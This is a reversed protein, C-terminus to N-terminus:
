SKNKLICVEKVFKPDLCDGEDNFKSEWSDESSNNIKAAGDKEQIVSTLNKLETCTERPLGISLKSSEKEVVNEFDIAMDHKLHRTDHPESLGVCSNDFSLTQFATDAANEVTKIEEINFSLENGPKLDPIDYLTFDLTKDKVEKREQEQFLLNETKGLTESATMLNEPDYKKVQDSEQVKGNLKHEEVAVFKVNTSDYQNGCDKGNGNAEKRLARPM